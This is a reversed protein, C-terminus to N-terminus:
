ANRRIMSKRLSMYSFILRLFDIIVSFILRLFDIIVPIHAQPLRHNSSVRLELTGIFYNLVNWGGFAFMGQYFAEGIQAVTPIDGEFARYFNNTKGLGLNVIGIIVIVSLATMKLVTFINQVLIIWKLNLCNIIGIILIVAIAMAKRILEPAPCGPFFPQVVYEAFMLAQVTTAAPKIFVTLTWLFIFAPVSGLGRKIYIYEGGCSPFTTGLEAYCLAGLLSLMGCAVWIVLAIGVNLQSYLLVGGPSIFIGSGLIVGVIFSVGSFYGIKRRLIISEKKINTEPEGKSNLLIAM